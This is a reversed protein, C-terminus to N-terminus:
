YFPFLFNAVWLICDPITKIPFGVTMVAVSHEDALLFLRKTKYLEGYLRPVVRFVNSNGLATCTNEFGVHMM